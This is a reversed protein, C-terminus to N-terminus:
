QKVMNLKIIAVESMFLRSIIFLQVMTFKNKIPKAKIFKAM